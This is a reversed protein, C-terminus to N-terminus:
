EIVEIPAEAALLEQEAQFALHAEIWDVAEQRNSWDQGNPNHPQLLIPADNENPNDIDWLRVTNNEDVEYRYNAM